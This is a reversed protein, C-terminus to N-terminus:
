QGRRVMGDACVADPQNLETVGSTISPNSAFRGCLGTCDEYAPEPVKVHGVLRELEERAAQLENGASEDGLGNEHGQFGPKRCGHDM